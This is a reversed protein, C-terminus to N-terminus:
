MMDSSDYRDDRDSMSAAGLEAVTIEEWADAVLVMLVTFLVRLTPGDVGGPNLPRLWVEFM